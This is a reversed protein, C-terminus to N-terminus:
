QSNLYRGPTASSQNSSRNEDRTSALVRERLELQAAAEKAVHQRALEKDQATKLAIAAQVAMRHEHERAYALAKTTALRAAEAAHAATKDAEERLKAHRAVEQSATEGAQRAQATARAIADAAVMAAEEAQRKVEAILKRTQEAELKLKALEVEQQLMKDVEDVETKWHPELEQPQPQPKYYINTRDHPRHEEDLPTKSPFLSALDATRVAATAAAMLGPDRLAM